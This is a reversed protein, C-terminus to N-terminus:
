QKNLTRKKAKDKNELENLIELTRDLNMLIDDEFDINYLRSIFTLTIDIINLNKTAVITKAIKLIPTGEIDKMFLYKYTAGDTNIMADTLKEVNSSDINAAYLYIYKSDNSEIIKDLLKESKIYRDYLKNLSPINKIKKAIEYISEANGIEIIREIFRIKKIISIHNITIFQFPIDGLNILAEFLKEVPAGEIERAFLRICNIDKTKILAESLKDINANKVRKAYACILDSDNSSIVLEEVDINEVVWTVRKIDGSFLNLFFYRILTNEFDLEEVYDKVKRLANEDNTSLLQMMLECIAIDKKDMLKNNEEM